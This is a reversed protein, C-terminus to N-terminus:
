ITDSKEIPLDISRSVEEEQITTYSVHKRFPHPLKFEDSPRGVRSHEFSSSSDQQPAAYSYQYMQSNHQQQQQLQLQNELREVLATLQDVKRELSINNGNDRSLDRSLDRSINVVYSEIEEVKIEAIASSIVGVAM